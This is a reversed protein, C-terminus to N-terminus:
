RALTGKKADWTIMKKEFWSLNGMAVSVLGYQGLEAPCNLPANDRIAAHLNKHHLGIDEKGTRKHTELVKKTQEEVIRWGKGEFILTAKQGRICHEIIHRNALTGLVHVTMGPTVGEIAPYEALMEYNDPLERGDPWLYIGGMGVVRTPFALGCAKIIRTIRHVFLDTAIGGSYDKYNRWEFYRRPDWARKPASGLWTDWDLDDPKAMNADTSKKRWPGRKLPHWRCYEIQAEIVPGLKGAVIAEHASAYSDDSMGQVGVQMKLGTKKVKDVVVQTQEITHTIPKECYVHKGASLADVTMQAHWHEPTTIAVYDLDKLALVDHYDRFTKPDGGEAQIKKHFQRARTDYIDCVALIEVTKEKRMPLLSKLHANGISGCGIIAMNLRDNAGLVRAYSKASMATMGAALASSTRLFSRRTLHNNTAM